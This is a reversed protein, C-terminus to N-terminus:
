RVLTTVLYSAAFTLVLVLVMLLLLPVSIMLGLRGWRRRVPTAQASDTEGINPDAEAM